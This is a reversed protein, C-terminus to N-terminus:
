RSPRRLAPRGSYHCSSADNAPAGLSAPPPTLAEQLQLAAYCGRFRRTRTRSHRVGFLAMILTDSPSSCPARVIAAARNIYALLPLQADQGHSFSKPEGLLMVCARFKSRAYFPLARRTSFRAIRTFFGEDPYVPLSFYLGSPAFTCKHVHAFVDITDAPRGPM